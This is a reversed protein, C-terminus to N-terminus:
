KNEEFWQNQFPMFVHDEICQRLEREFSNVDGKILGLPSNNPYRDEYYKISDKAADRLLALSEDMAKRMKPNVYRHM